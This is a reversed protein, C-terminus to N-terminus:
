VASILSVDDLQTGALRNLNSLPLPPEAGGSWAVHFSLESGMQSCGRPLSRSNPYRNDGLVYVGLGWGVGVELPRWTEM